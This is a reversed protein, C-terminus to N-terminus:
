DFLDGNPNTLSYLHGDSLGLLIQQKGTPQRILAFDTTPRSPLSVRGLINLTKGDLVLLASQKADPIIIRSANNKVVVSSLGLARSGISHNSFGNAKNSQTLKKGDFRWIQLQGGIHPTRVLGIEPRGNGSLDALVSPNLWRNARGIAPTEALLRLENDRIGLIAIAAGAGLYSRVLVLENRGDGDLDTLRPVLDEFVSDKPLKFHRYQGNKLQVAVGEAEIADGLVGHQYRSTPGTLWAVRIDGDRATAVQGDRLAKGQSAPLSPSAQPPAKILCLDNSGDDCGIARHWNTGQRVYVSQGKGDNSQVLLEKVPQQTHLKQLSLGKSNMAIAPSMLFPLCLVSLYLQRFHKLSPKPRSFASQPSHQQDPNEAFPSAM